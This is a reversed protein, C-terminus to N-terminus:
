RKKNKTAAVQSAAIQTAERLGEEIQARVADLTIVLRQRAIKLELAISGDPNYVADFLRNGADDRIPKHM